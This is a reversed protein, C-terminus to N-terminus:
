KNKRKVSMKAMMRAEEKRRREEDGEMMVKKDGKRMKGEEVATM